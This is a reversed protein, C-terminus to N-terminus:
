IGTRIQGHGALFGWVSVADGRGWDVKRLGKYILMCLGAGVAGPGQPFTLSFRFM